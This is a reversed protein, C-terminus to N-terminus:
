IDLFFSLSGSFFYCEMMHSTRCIVNHVKNCGLASSTGKCTIDDGEWHAREGCVLKRHPGQQRFGTECTYTASDM